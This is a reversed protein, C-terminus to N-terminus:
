SFFSSESEEERVDLFKKQKSLQVLKYMSCDIYNDLLNNLIDQEDNKMVEVYDRQRPLELSVYYKYHNYVAPIYPGLIKWSIFDIYELPFLYTDFLDYYDVSILYLLKMLKLNTISVKQDKCYNIVYKSLNVVNYFTVFM